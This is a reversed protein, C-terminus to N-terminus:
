LGRARAERAVVLCAAKDRERFHPPAAQDLAGRQLANLYWLVTADDAEDLRQDRHRGFKIRHDIDPEPAGDEENAREAPSPLEPDDPPPIPAKPAGGREVDVAFAVLQKALSRARAAVDGHEVNTSM